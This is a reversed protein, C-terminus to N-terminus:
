GQHGTAPKFMHRMFELSNFLCWNKIVQEMTRVEHTM